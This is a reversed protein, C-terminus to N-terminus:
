ERSDIWKTADGFGMLKGDVDLMPVNVFGKEIMLSEDEVVDYTINKKKLKKELINCKPCHTSYLVIM